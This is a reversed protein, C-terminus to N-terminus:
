TIKAAKRIKFEYDLRTFAWVAAVFDMAGTLAPSLVKDRSGRIM